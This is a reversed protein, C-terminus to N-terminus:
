PLLAVALANVTVAAMALATRLSHWSRWEPRPDKWDAPIASTDIALLRRNIPVNALHSVGQVGLTLLLAAAFLLRPAIAPVLVALAIEALMAGNVILPMAPHYGRGLKKHMEIYPAPPLTLLAPLVSVAVAFFVGAVIGSGALAVVGFVVQLVDGM